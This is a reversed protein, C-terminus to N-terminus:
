KIYQRLFIYSYPSLLLLCSVRFHSGGFVVVVAGPDCICPRPVNRYGGVPRWPCNDARKFLIFGKCCIERMDPRRRFKHGSHLGFAYWKLPLESSAPFSKRGSQSTTTGSSSLPF